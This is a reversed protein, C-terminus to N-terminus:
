HPIERIRVGGPVSTDSRHHGAVLAGSGRGDHHRCPRLPAMRGAAAGTVGNDPTDDDELRYEMDGWAVGDVGIRARRLEGANPTDGGDPNNPNIYGYDAQVRGRM